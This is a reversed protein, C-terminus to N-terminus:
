RISDYEYRLAMFFQVLHAKEIYKQFIITDVEYEFKPDMAALQDWLLSMQAYFDSISQNPMQRLSRLDMELKYKQAFNTGMYQKELFLWVDKASDFKGIPLPCAGTAYKWLNQGKLFTRMISVWHFYNTDDFKVPVIQAFDMSTATAALWSDVYYYSKQSGCWSLIFCNEVSLQLLLLFRLSLLACVIGFARLRLRAVICGSSLNEFGRVIELNGLIELPTQSLFWLRGQKPGLEVSNPRNLVIQSGYYVRRESVM